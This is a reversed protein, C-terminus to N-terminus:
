ADDQEGVMARVLDSMSLVGIPTELEPDVVILRHVHAQEMVQAAEAITMSPDATIAPSHMLHRVRLGPWGSWLHETARARVLDSESLVGVLRGDADVVPAGSIESEELIRTASPLGDDINLVIPDPTMVDDVTPVAREPTM